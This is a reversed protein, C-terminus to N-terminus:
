GRFFADVSRSLLQPGNRLAMEKEMDKPTISCLEVDPSHSTTCCAVDADVMGAFVVARKGQAAARCVIEGPGKGSLSSKDFRGEGTLVVDARAVKREMDLLRWVLDFGSLFPADYVVRLSWGLGGAAGGFPLHLQDDSKGMHALLRRGMQALAADMRPVDAVMLGKQPGFVAAAGSSGLLPNEVDCAVFLPPLRRPAGRFGDVQPWCEPVVGHSSGNTVVCDLGLAELAGLGLDCTASGGIGLLIARAGRDAAYGLIEGTGRSTTKWPNRLAEPVCWLGSAEAMEVIALEGPAGALSFLLRATEPLTAIGVFGVFAKRREGLPGTVEVQELRGGLAQTLITCFGEGGDSLPALEVVATRDAALLGARAAECAEAASMCDKFKDFAALYRM